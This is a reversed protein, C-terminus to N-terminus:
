SLAVSKDTNKQDLSSKKVWFVVTLSGICGALSDVILNRSTCWRKTMEATADRM